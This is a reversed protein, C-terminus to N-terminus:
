KLLVLHTQKVYIVSPNDPFTHMTIKPNKIAINAQQESLPFLTKGTIPHIKTM